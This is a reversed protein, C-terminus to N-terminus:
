LLLWVAIRRPIFDEAMRIILRRRLEGEIGARGAAIRRVRQVVGRKDALRDRALRVILEGDLREEFRNADFVPPKLEEVAAFLYATMWRVSEAQGRTLLRADRIAQEVATAPLVSLDNRLPKHVFGGGWCM